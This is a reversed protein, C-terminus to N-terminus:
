AALIHEALRNMWEHAFRAQSPDSLCNGYWKAREAVVFRQASWLEGATLRHWAGQTEPGAIGDAPVKLFRQIGKIAPREGSNVAFDLVAWALGFHEPLESLRRMQAWLTYIALARERTLGRIDDDSWTRHTVTELFPRTLGWNTIGGHDNPDNAVGAERGVIRSLVAALLEKTM